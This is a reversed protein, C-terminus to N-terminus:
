KETAAPATKTAEGEMVTSWDGGEPAIEFKFTYSTPSVVKITYRGRYLKGQMREEHTWTWTDGVLTGKAHEVRGGSTYLDYTYVKEFNDYGFIALGKLKGTPASGEAHSILFFGGLGWSNQETHTFKRGPGFQSPKREGTSAWNGAFYELKKVEPSPTPQTPPNQAAVFATWILTAVLVTVFRKLMLM